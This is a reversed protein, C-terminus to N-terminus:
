MYFLLLVLINIFLLVFFNESYIFVDLVTEQKYKALKSDSIFQIVDYFINDITINLLQQHIM